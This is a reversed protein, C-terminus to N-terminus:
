DFRLGSEKNSQSVPTLGFLFGSGAQFEVCATGGMLNQDYRKFSKSHAVFRFSLENL